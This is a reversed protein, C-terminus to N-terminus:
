PRGLCGVDRGDRGIPLPEFEDRGLLDPPLHCLVVCRKQRTASWWAPLIMVSLLTRDASQEGVDFLGVEGDRAGRWLHRSRASLPVPGLHLLEELEPPTPVFRSITPPLVPPVGEIRFGTDAVYLDRIMAM